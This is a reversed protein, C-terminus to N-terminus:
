KGYTFYILPNLIAIFVVGAQTELASETCFNIFVNLVFFFYLLNKEKYSMIFPILFMAILSILGLGGLAVTTQVFQNHANYNNEIARTIGNKKYNAMLEDKVDGTGVGLLPAEKIIELSHKWMALRVGFSSGSDEAQVVVSDNSRNFVYKTLPFAILISIVLSLMLIAFGRKYRIKPFIFYLIGSLILIILVLLGTRAGLQNIFVISYSLLLYPFPIIRNRKHMIYVLLISVSLNLYMAFYGPHLYRSLSTYFLAGVDGFTYAKVGGEILCFVSALITGFVFTKFIEPLTYKNIVKSTLILLPLLFLSLKVEMDFWGFGSNKSYLMGILHMLYFSVMSLIVWKREKFFRVRDAMPVSILNTIIFLVIGIPIIDKDFPLLFVMLHTAYLNLRLLSFKPVKYGELLGM